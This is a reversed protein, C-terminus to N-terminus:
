ESDEALFSLKLGVAAEPLTLVWVIITGSDKGVMIVNSMSQRNASELLISIIEPTFGFPLDKNDTMGGDAILRPTAEIRLAGNAEDNRLEAEFIACPRDQADLELRVFHPVSIALANKKPTPRDSISLPKGPGKGSSQDLLNGLRTATKALSPGKGASASTAGTGPAAYSKAHGALRQLAVRVWTKPSGKPLMDPVWDDHAPPEAMAFAEEVAKDESCIFVGAWEFRPDPFPDGAIYKVVLEVPRMVAIHSAQNPIVSWESLSSEHRQARMGRVLSISGLAKQPKECRISKLDGEPKRHEAIASTFLDLPPFNEPSPILIEDNEIMLKISLKRDAPTSETLRPWFNWLITEIIEHSFPRLEEDILPDIMMITTGSQKLNREPMGLCQAAFNASEGTAPDIGDEEDKIGWWHRGTFRKRRSDPGTAEFASGLHCGMFRRVAQNGYTTVTDVLITSCASMAYLSTKGYGYTGGGHHTDRAVGVNRLFNVFDLSEGGEAVADGSTPGGLGTTNFDCIELVRLAPQDLSRALAEETQDSAIQGTLVSSLLMQHQESSLTRYRILIAPGGGLRAADVSNQISERLVTQLLDQAPRGLLKKFGDAAINGTRAFPESFLELRSM